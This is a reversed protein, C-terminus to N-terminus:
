VIHEINFTTVLEGVYKGIGTIILTATGPNINNKYGVTYDTSFVLEVTTESGDKAQKVISVLPIVYIPKGTYQQVEIQAITAQTIDIKAHLRGYHEHVLTNYHNVLVNFENVFPVYDAEGNIDILSTVRNTILRLAEDTQHRAVRQSISPKELQEQAVDDVYSKFLTNQNALETVWPELHLNQVAPLYEPSNLRVIISDIGATEADYGAHTLHGYNSLLNNLHVANDRIAPDFHKLNTHVINEIGLYVTDRAHDTAAKKETYESRRIWKYINEEQTVKGAYDTILLPANIVTGFKNTIVRSSVHFEVHDANSYRSVDPKRLVLM